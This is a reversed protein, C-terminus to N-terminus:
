GNHTTLFSSANEGVGADCPYFIFAIIEGDVDFLTNYGIGIRTIQKPSLVGAARAIERVASIMSDSEVM